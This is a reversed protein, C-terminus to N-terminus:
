YISWSTILLKLYFKLLNEQMLLQKIKINKMKKSIYKIRNEFNPHRNTKILTMSEDDLLINVKMKSMLFDRLYTIIGYNTIKGYFFCYTLEDIISVVISLNKSFRYDDKKM